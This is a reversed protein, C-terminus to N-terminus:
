KERELPALVVSKAARIEDAIGRLEVYRTIRADGAALGRALYGNGMAPFYLLRLAVGVELDAGPGLAHSFWQARQAPDVQALDVREVVGDVEVEISTAGVAKVLGRPRDKGDVRLALWCGELQEHAKETAGFFAAIGELETARPEDPHDRRWAAFAPDAVLAVYAAVAEKPQRRAIGLHAETLKAALEGPPADEATRELREIRARHADLREALEPLQWGNMLAVLRKAEAARRAEFARELQEGVQEVQQLITGDVAVKRWAAVRELQAATAGPTPAKQFATVRARAKGYEQESMLKSVELQLTNVDRDVLARRLEDRKTLARERHISDPEGALYRDVLALRQVPDEGAAALAAELAAFRREAPDIGPAGSGSGIGSPVTPNPKLVPKESPVEAPDRGRMMVGLMVGGLILAIAAAAILGRVGAPPRVRADRHAASPGTSRKRAVSSPRARSADGRGGLRPDAHADATRSTGKTARAVPKAGALEPPEKGRLIESMLREVDQMAGLRLAPSKALMRELLADLAPPYPLGLPEVAKNVTAQLAAMMNPAEFPSRGKVMAYLTAGLSFIDTREDIAKGEAQEPSMFGPSGIVQGEISVQAGELERALGFDAVKVRGEADLLLNDPKVDRHVLGAKHAAALASAADRALELARELPLPGDAAITAAVSKGPVYEMVLFDVGEETGADHVRVAHTHQFRAALRAERLFRERWGKQMALTPPLIKIAVEIELSQHRALYVAGMGGQGIKRLITCRGLTLGLLRDSSDDDLAAGGVLTTPTFTGGRIWGCRGCRPEAAPDGRTEVQGCCQCVHCRVALERELRGKQTPAVLGRAVLLDGFSRLPNGQHAARAEDLAPGEVLGLELAIAALRERQPSGLEDPRQRELGRRLTQYIPERDSEGLVGEAELVSVPDESSAVRAQDAPALKARRGAIQALANRYTPHM